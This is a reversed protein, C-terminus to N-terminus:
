GGIEHSIRNLFEGNGYEIVMRIVERKNNIILLKLSIDNRMADDVNLDSM